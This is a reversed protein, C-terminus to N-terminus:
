KNNMPVINLVYGSTLLAAEGGHRLYDL